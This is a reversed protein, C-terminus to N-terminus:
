LAAMQERDINHLAIKYDGGLWPVLFELLLAFLWYMTEIVYLFVFYKGRLGSTLALCVPCSYFIM